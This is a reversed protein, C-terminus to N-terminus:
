KKFPCDYCDDSSTSSSFVIVVIVHTKVEQFSLWQLWWQKNKQVLCDCWDCTNKSKSFVILAIMSTKLDQLPFWLNYKLFWSWASKFYIIYKATSNRYKVCLYSAVKHETTICAGICTVDDIGQEDDVFDKRLNFIM